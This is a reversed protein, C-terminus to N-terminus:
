LDRAIDELIDWTKLELDPRQAEIFLQVLSDHLADAEHLISAAVVLKGKGTVERGRYHSCLTTHNMVHGITHSSLTSQFVGLYSLKEAAQEKIQNRNARILDRVEKPCEPIQRSIDNRDVLDLALPVARRIMRDAYLCARAHLKDSDFPLVFSSRSGERLRNSINRSVPCDM